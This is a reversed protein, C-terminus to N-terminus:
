AQRQQLVIALVKAAQARTTSGLPQLSGNPFGDLYGAAVAEEVGTRAWLGVQGADTFDLRARASLHLARALLVAMQERTVVANPSFTTASVGEVIGAQVGAAVYPAYWADAAVDSFPTRGSSLPQLGVTCVLMKVFQARTVDGNPQFMGDPYGDVIGARALEDISKAAWNGAPVDPFGTVTSAVGCALPVTASAYTFRDAAVMASTGSTTTVTVDVTAGASGAPSVVTLETPSSVTVDQGANAGFRVTKTGLLNSGRITVLTGGLVPGGNPRLATVAPAPASPVVVDVLGVGTVVAFPTGTMQSLSPSSTTTITATLCGGSARQPSVLQWSGSQANWWYLEAQGTVQCEQVQVSDFTNGSSLAADFYGSAGAFSLTGGPNGSYQAVAVTGAGCSATATTAETRAMATCDAASGTASSSAAGTITTHAPTVIEVAQAKVPSGDVVATVTVEGSVSPATFSTSYTGDGASTLSAAGLTGVQAGGDGRSLTLTLPMGGMVAGTGDYVTGSLTSGGSVQLSPPDFAVTASGLLFQDTTVESFTNGNVTMGTLNEGWLGYAEGSITNDAVVTGTVPGVAGYLVVGARAGLGVASDAGDGGITNGRISNANVNELAASGTVIVGADANGTVTNGSVTNGAATTPLTASVGPREAGIVIGSGNGAVSNDTLVNGAVGEGPNFATVAIGAGSNGTVTNGSVTNGDGPNPTGPTTGAPNVAGDDSVGIGGGGNPGVTNGTVTADSTGVLQLADDQAIGATPAAGNGTLVCNEVTVGTTDQVLIGQDNAREVTLGDLVTGAAGPGEVVIGDSQGAADIITSAAGDAIAPDSELTVPERITIPAQYTGPEVIVTGGAGVRGIAYPITAYPSGQSGNGTSDSGSTSVYAVPGSLFTEGRSPSVPATDASTAVTFTGAGYTGAAPNTIGSAVVTVPSSADVGAPVTLVVGSRSAVPTATVVSGDVTYDAAVLPFGTGSPGSLTITGSAAALAGSGSTTFGVTWTAAALPTLPSAAFRVGTVQSPYLSFTIGGSPNAPATDVATSVAFAGPGDFGAVPNTVGSAVVTLPTSADVALPMLLTLTNDGTGYVARAVTANVTYDAAVTPFVTGSPATLQVAQGATLAGSASTSFAVTWTSTAGGTLPSATFRVGTVATATVAVDPQVALPTLSGGSTSAEQLDFASTGATGPATADGYRITVTQGATLTVDSVRVLDGSIAVNDTGSGGSAQVYGAGAPADGQPASWGSPVTWLVTGDSTIGAATYTIALDNGTSRAVVSTPAVTATGSGDASAAALTVTGPNALAALTGTATSAEQAGFGVTGTTEPTAVDQFTITLTEGSALTVGSVEVLDGSVQVTNTGNGGRASVYGATTPVLDQPPTWGSPVTFAVTGGSTGAASPAYTLTLTDGTSGPTLTSPSVTMTGTGDAAAVTVVPQGALATGDLSAEFTSTQGTAPAAADAYTITLAQSPSLDVGSVALTDTYVDVSVTNSGSGGSATVQGAGTGAQPASWGSPVQLYVAGAVTGGAGSPYLFTLTNGSSGATVNAPSVGMWGGAPYLQVTGNAGVPPSTGPVNALLTAAGVTTPAAVTATFAGDAGTTATAVGGGSGWALDVTEGQPSPHGTSDYVTGSVTVDGGASAAPPVRWQLSAVPAYPAPDTASAPVADDASVTVENAPIGSPTGSVTVPVTIAPLLTGALIPSSASAAYVCSAVRATSAGCAWGAGSPTGVGTLTAPLADTVTIPADEPGGQASTEVTTTYDYNTGQAYHGGANDLETTTLVPPNTGPAPTASVLSVEHVNTSGGTSAVWGFILQYPVGTTPNYWSTPIGLGSVNQVDPLAGSLTQRSGGIPTFAVEYHGAPVTLGSATTIAAGTPNIVVEVPVEADSLNPPTGAYELNGSLGYDPEGQYYSGSQGQMTSNLICYGVTGNGPGRVTVNQPGTGFPAYAPDTCGTGQYQTNVYNGYTDFGIGLYGYSMGAIPAGTSSYGLAGGPQGISAPPTPDAPNTAALFFAIGDAGSGGYQFTDFHMDIGDTSPVSLTDAIGGEEGYNASTLRLAGSGAAAATGGCGPIPTQGTDASATLCATNDGDPAAPLAWNPTLTTPETFSEHSLVIQTGAASAGAAAAPPPVAVMLTM